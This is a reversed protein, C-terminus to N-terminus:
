FSNGINFEFQVPDDGRAFGFTGKPRANLPVGWEFRLPGIPSFWRVGIGVATYVGLPLDRRDRADWCRTNGCTRGSLYPTPANGLYFFNEDPGYANGADAFAVGRIGVQEFIPFELELNMIIQKTGGVRFEQLAGDPSLGGVRRVPGISRPYYGRITNFGGLYYNEFVLSNDVTNLFGVEVNSKLVIGDVPLVENFSYYLRMTASYRQFENVLGGRKLLGPRLPGIGDIIGANQIQDKAWTEAPPALASGLYPHAFEAGLQFYYGQSPTLRNNRQDFILSGRLSTTYRPTNAQLGLLRVNFTDEQIEVREANATLFLQFNELDPVYPRLMDPSEELLPRTLFSVPRGLPYGLTVDAGSSNRFFDIYNRQTNFVSYALTIPEQFVYFAYPDIYRFDVIQRFQSWQVSGSVTTGRGMFNNEAVQGTIIFQEANSFGAGVQFTGTPKETVDFVVVLRDPATGQRTTVEVKEFFGLANVRQESLRLLTASYWEGEYVRVERRVVLDQTKTNGTIEVREVRVRPGSEIRLDLGVSREEDNVDTEPVINVYAYGQDRYRDAVAIVDTAVKSRSFIEGAKVKTRGLIDSKLFLIRDPDERKMRKLEAKDEVLLDGSVDFSRMTYQEGETVPISLHIRTKDPSLSARPTGIRVNLYGEDQYVAEAALPDIEATEEKYTGWDTLMGAPHNERTAISNQLKDESLNENGTFRVREVKVKANEKVIFAVDAFEGLGEGESAPKDDQGIGLWKLAADLLNEDDDGEPNTPGSSPRLEYSVEALFFGKDVYLKTIKGVNARVRPVDLVQFSKLDVVEKIDDSSVESNGEYIVDGIAPKEVLKYILVISESPGPRVMVVVDSFLGMKYIRKVDERIISQDPRRDIRAQVHVLVADPEVKRAGEIRIEFVRDKEPKASQLVGPQKARDRAAEVEPALPEPLPALDEPKPAREEKKKPQQPQPGQGMGPGFQASAVSSTLLAGLLLATVVLFHRSARPMLVTPATYLRV